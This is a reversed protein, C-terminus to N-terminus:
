VQLHRKCESIREAERKKIEAIMNSLVKELESKLHELPLEVSKQKLDFAMLLFEELSTYIQLTKAGTPDDSKEIRRQKLGLSVVDFLNKLTYVVPLV